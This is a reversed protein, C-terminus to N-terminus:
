TDSAKVNVEGKTKSAQLGVKLDIHRAFKKEAVPPISVVLIEAM